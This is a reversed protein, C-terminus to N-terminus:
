TPDKTRRRPKRVKRWRAALEDTSDLGILTNSVYPATVQLKVGASTTEVVTYELSYPDGSEHLRQLKDGVKLGQWSARPRPPPKPKAWIAVRLKSLIAALVTPTPKPM